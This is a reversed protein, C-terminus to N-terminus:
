NAKAPEPAPAAKRAAKEAQVKQVYARFLAKWDRGRSILYQESKTKYIEFIASIQPMSKYDVAEERAQQLFGLIIKEEEATLDPVIAHYGKLTFAVKGVTYKDLIAEVQAETLDARLGSMLAAHVTKPMAGDAIMERDLKSLPKGTAPNVGEPVTTYPHANHWDRVTTLHAAIVARVRESKAPDALGLEGVWAAARKLIAPDTKAPAVAGPEAARLIASGVLAVAFAVFKLGRSFPRSIHM